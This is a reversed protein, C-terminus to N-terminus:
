ILNLIKLAVHIMESFLPSFQLKLIIISLVLRPYKPNHERTEKSIAARLAFCDFEMGSLKIDCILPIRPM